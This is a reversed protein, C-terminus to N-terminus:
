CFRLKLYVRMKPNTKSNIPQALSSSESGFMRLRATTITDTRAAALITFVMHGPFMNSHSEGSSTQRGLDLLHSPSRSQRIDLESSIDQGFADIM